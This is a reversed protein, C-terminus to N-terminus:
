NNTVPKKNLAQALVLLPLILCLFILTYASSIELRMSAYSDALGVPLTKTLPTHLMWTLNFEGISLTLTMLMGAVIGAKCNPVIVDFFRQWFTAGLSAAGEELVRFNISQLISLVSKVMFPLTFIVHGVLIFMWSSRFDNFGGYALILGLSIAMGPIAIPLTLLEDFISAWRSKSKALVYACPVGIVVNILTTAIAIQLTLWITDSYLTWVQEVWRFTFGSKVGVFYNNTLGAVVSMFVPVILFACVTLTFFLQMYFYKDKKM